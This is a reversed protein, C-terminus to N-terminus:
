SRLEQEFLRKFESRTIAIEAREAKLRLRDDFNDRKAELVASVSEYKDDLNKEFMRLRDALSMDAPIPFRM